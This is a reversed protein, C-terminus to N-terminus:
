HPDRVEPRTFWPLARHVLPGISVVFWVTGLGVRGGLAAGVLLVSLEIATRVKWVAFGRRAFATMLGDRPGPGLGGGIYLGSGLAVMVPAGLMLASRAAVADVTSLWPLTADVVTGIILVNLVTGPGVRERLPVFAAVLLVGIGIIVSGVSMGSTQALGQHLVDWPAVGLDAALMMAVGLGFLVLGLVVQPVRRLTEAPSHLVLM